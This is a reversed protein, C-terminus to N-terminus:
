RAPEADVRSHFNLLNGEPDRFFISRIGWPQTTPPKVWVLGPIRCLRAYEADVDDVLFELEVSRNRGPEASGPALREHAEAAFLSLTAVPTRFEAYADGATHPELQLVQEYFGIMAKMDGSLICVHTLKM